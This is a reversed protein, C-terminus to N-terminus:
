TCTQFNNSIYSSLPAKSHQEAQQQMVQKQKREDEKLFLDKALIIWNHVVAGWLTMKM